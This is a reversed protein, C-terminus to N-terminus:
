YDFDFVRKFCEKNIGHKKRWRNAPYLFDNKFEVPERAGQDVFKDFYCPFENSSLIGCIGLINMIRDVENRNTKFIREKIITDRLKGVKNNDNLLNVCSLIRLLIDKDEQTPTVKPLKVFQELDFLAFDAGTHRVGGFKYREFNLVNIDNESHWNCLNCDVGKFRRDIDISEHEPIAIAYWYSGLASRYELKRTSLSYLFANAVDHPTIKELVSNLRDLTEGHPIIRPSDEFMYGEDKAIAFDEPSVGQNRTSKWGGSEWYCNLLIKLGKDM